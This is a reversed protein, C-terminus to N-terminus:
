GRVGINPSPTRLRSKRKEPRKMDGMHYDIESQVKDKPGQKVEKAM